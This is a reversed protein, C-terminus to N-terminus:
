FSFNVGGLFNISYTPYNYWRQIRSSTINNINAFFSFHKKYRYDIHFNVDAFAKIDQIGPLALNKQERAGWYIAEASLNIKQQVNYQLRFRVESTPLQWPSGSAMNYDNVRAILFSRFKSSFTYGLQAKFSLITAYSYVVKFSSFTDANTIYLPLNDTESRSVEGLFELNKTLKGEFGIYARYLNISNELRFTDAIFPNHYVQTRLMTKDLGGTIGGYVIVYDKILHYKAYLDPFVYIGTDSGQPLYAVKFGATIDIDEKPHKFTYRPNFDVFVREQFNNATQVKTHMVGLDALIQGEFANMKFDAVAEISSEKSRSNTNFSHYDLLFGVKPSKSKNALKNFRFSGNWDEYNRLLDKKTFDTNNPILGFRRLSHRDYGLNITFQNNKLIRAGYFKIKNDSFDQFSNTRNASLHKFEAGYILKDDKLNFIYAEALPMNFNGYGLKIYNGRWDEKEKSKYSIPALPTAARKTNAQYQSLDYSFQLPNTNITKLEPNIRLKESKELKPRYKGGVIDFNRDAGLNSTDKQGIITYSIMLLPALLLTRM